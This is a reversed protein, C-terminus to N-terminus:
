ATEFKDWSGGLAKYLYIADILLALKEKLYASYVSNCRYEQHYLVIAHDQGMTSRLRVLRLAEKEEDLQRKIYKIKDAQAQYRALATEAETLASLIIKKYAWALEEARAKKEAVLARLRGGQFFPFKFGPGIQTALSARDFLANFIVSQFNLNASFIFKPYLDAVAIGWYAVATALNQEAARVDPRRRLIDSRLGIPIPKLSGPLFPKMQNLEKSLVPPELGELFALHYTLARIDGQLAPESAAVAEYEAHAQSLEMASSEGIAYRKQLLNWIKKKLQRNSQMLHFQMKAHQLQFYKRAVEAFLRLKIMQKEEELRQVQAAQAEIMKKTQGFLDLEWLTDFGTEYLIKNRKVENLVIPDFYGLEAGSQSITRSFAGGNFYISPYLGATYAKKLSRAEEIHSNAIKIDINGDSLKKIQANLGPDSFSHWWHDDFDGKADIDTGSLSWAAHSSLEPRKFQPDLACSCILLVIPAWFVPLGKM